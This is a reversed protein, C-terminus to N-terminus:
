SEFPANPKECASVTLSPLSSEHYSLGSSSCIEWHFSVSVNNM